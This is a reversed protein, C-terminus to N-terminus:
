VTALVSAPWWLKAPFRAAAVQNFGLGHRAVGGEM